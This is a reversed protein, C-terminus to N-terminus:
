ADLRGMVDRLRNKEDDSMPRGTCRGHKENVKEAVRRKIEDQSLGLRRLLTMLLDLIRM